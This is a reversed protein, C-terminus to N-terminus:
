FEIGLSLSAGSYIGLTSGSRFYYGLHAAPILSVKQSGLNFRYGIETDARTVSSSYEESKYGYSNETWENQFFGFAGGIFLKNMRGHGLPYFRFGLDIGNITGDEGIRGWFSSGSDEISYDSASVRAFLATRSNNLLREYEISGLMASDCFGTFYGGAFNISNSPEAYCTNTILAFIMSFMFPAVLQVRRTM